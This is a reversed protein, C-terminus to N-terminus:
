KCLYDVKVKWHFKTKSCKEDMHYIRHYGSELVCMMQTFYYRNDNDKTSTFNMTYMNELIEKSFQTLKGIVV